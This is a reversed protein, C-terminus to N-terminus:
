RYLLLKNPLSENIPWMYINFENAFCVLVGYRGKNMSVRIMQDERESNGYVVIGDSIEVSCENVHDWSYLDLKPSEKLITLKISVDREIAATLKVFNSGVEVKGVTTTSDVDQSNSEFAEVDALHMGSKGVPITMQFKSSLPSIEHRRLTGNVMSEFLIKLSDDPMKLVDRELYKYVATDSQHFVVQGLFCKDYDVFLSYNHAILYYYGSDKQVYYQLDYSLQEDVHVPAIIQNLIKKQGLETLYKEPLYDKDKCQLLILALFPVWGIMLIQQMLRTM